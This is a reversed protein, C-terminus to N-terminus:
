QENTAPNQDSIAKSLNNQINSEPKADTPAGAASTPKKQVPPKGRNAEVHQMVKKDYGSIPQNGTASRWMTNEKSGSARM